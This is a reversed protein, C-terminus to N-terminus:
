EYIIKDVFKEPTDIVDCIYLVLESVKIQMQYNEQILYDDDTFENLHWVNSTPSSQIALLYYSGSCNSNYKFVYVFGGKLPCFYSNQLDINGGDFENMYLYMGKEHEIIFNRLPKYDSSYLDINDEIRRWELNGLITDDRLKSILNLVKQNDM